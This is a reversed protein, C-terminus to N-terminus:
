QLAPALPWVFDPRSLAAVDDPLAVPQLRLLDIGFAAPHKALPSRGVDVMVTILHRAAGREDSLPLTLRALRIHGRAPVALRTTRFGGFFERALWAYERVGREIERRLAPDTPNGHVESQTLGRVERGIMQVTRSGALRYRFPGGEPAADLLMIDPLLPGLDVPDIDAKDPCRRAGRKALWYDLLAQLPAFPLPWLGAAPEPEAPRSM